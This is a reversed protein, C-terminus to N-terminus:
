DTEKCNERYKLGESTIEYVTSDDRLQHITSLLNVGAYTMLECHRFWDVDNNNRLKDIIEKDAMCPHRNIITAKPFCLLIKCRIRHQSYGFKDNFTPESQEQIIKKSYFRPKIKIKDRIKDRYKYLIGLIIGGIITVIVGDLIPSGTTIFDFYM